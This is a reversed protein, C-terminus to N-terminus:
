DSEPRKSKARGNLRGRLIEAIREFESRASLPVRPPMKACGSDGWDAGERPAYQCRIAEVRLAVNKADPQEQEVVYRYYLYGEGQSQETFKWGTRVRGPEESMLRFGERELVAGSKKLATVPDAAPIVAREVRALCGAVLLLPALAVWRRM